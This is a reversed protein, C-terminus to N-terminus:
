HVRTLAVSTSEYQVHMIVIATPRYSVGKTMAPYDYV